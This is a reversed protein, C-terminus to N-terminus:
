DAGRQAEGAASLTNMHRLTFITREKRTKGQFTFIQDTAGKQAQGAASLKNMHRLTFFPWGLKFHTFRAM